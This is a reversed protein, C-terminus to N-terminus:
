GMEGSGDLDPSHKIELVHFLCQFKEKLKLLNWLKAEKQYKAYVQINLFM